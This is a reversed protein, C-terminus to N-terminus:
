DKKMKFSTNIQIDPKVTIGMYSPVKIGHANFNVDASGTVECTGGKCSAKYHFSADKSVGHM